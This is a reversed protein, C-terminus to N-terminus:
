PNSTLWVTSPGGQISGTHSYTKRHIHVVVLKSLLLHATNQVWEVRASSCAGWGEGGPNLFSDVVRHPM